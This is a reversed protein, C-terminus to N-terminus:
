LNCQVSDFCVLFNKKHLLNPLLNPNPQFQLKIVTYPIRWPRSLFCESSTALARLALWCIWWGPAPKEAVLCCACYVRCGCSWTSGAIPALVMAIGYCYWPLVTCFLCYWRCSNLRPLWVVPKEPRLKRKLITHTQFSVICNQFLVFAQFM